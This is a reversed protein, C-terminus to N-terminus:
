PKFALTALAITQERYNSYTMPLHAWIIRDMASLTLPNQPNKTNFITM